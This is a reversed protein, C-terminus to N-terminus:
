SHNKPPIYFHNCYHTPSIKRSGSVHNRLKYVVGILCILLLSCFRFLIASLDHQLPFHEPFHESKKQHGWTQNDFLLRSYSYSKFISSHSCYFVPRGIDKIELINSILCCYLLFFSLLLQIITSFQPSSTTEMRTGVEKSRWLRSGVDCQPCFTLIGWLNKVIIFHTKLIVIIGPEPDGQLLWNM